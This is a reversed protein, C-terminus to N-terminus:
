ALPGTGSPARGAEAPRGPPASTPAARLERQSKITRRNSLVDHGPPNHRLRKAHLLDADAAALVATVDQGPQAQALGVSWSAEHVRRLEALRQNAQEVSTGPMLVVFEDGGFRGLLEDSGLAAAWARAVTSLLEDGVLHGHEDNVAKFNDLDLLAITIPQRRLEQRALQLWISRHLAGTLADTAGRLHLQYALNSLTAAVACAVAIAVGVSVWATTIGSLGTGALYAASSLGMHVRLARTTCFAGCYMAAVMLVPGVAVVGAPTRSIAAILAIDLSYLLVLGHMLWSPARRGWVFLAAAILVAGAGIAALPGVRRVPNASAFAGLLCFVGGALYMWTLVRVRAGRHDDQWALELQRAREM